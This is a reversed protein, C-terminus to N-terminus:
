RGFGGFRQIQQQINVGGSNGSAAGSFNMPGAGSFNAPGAANAGGQGYARFNFGVVQDDANLGAVVEVENGDTLGTQVMVSTEVGNRLVTVLAQNGRRVVAELPLKLVNDVRATEIEVSASYGVRLDEYDGEIQISVPVTVLGGSAQAIYGIDSVVGHFMAGGLADVTVTARQGLSVLGMDLEDVTVNVFFQSNDLLTIASSNANVSEGTEIALDVVIGSFPALIKTKELNAEAIQLDLERERRASATGDIKALELANKAKLLALEQQSSEMVALVQGAEVYDGKGVLVRQVQGGLAFGLNAQRAGSISGSAGITRVISGRPIAMTRQVMRDSVAQQTQPRFYRYGWFGAVVVVIFISFILLKGRKM